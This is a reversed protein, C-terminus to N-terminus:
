DAGNEITDILQAMVRGHKVMTAFEDPTASLTHDRIVQSSKDLTFHKEVFQAGRSIALLPAEIGLLHDSYGYYGTPEFKEPLGSLEWPMAPYSSVCYIYHLVKGDPAGFPWDDGEWFGLSVYTPNGEALVAEVLKPNDVVTRSAIKNRKQGIHKALEHGEETIISGMMEIGIYDCYKKLDMAIEPTICNIEDPKSRWGFQFKAIDAGSLKAQRILEKAFDFNGNHNMGIEACFIMKHDRETIDAM